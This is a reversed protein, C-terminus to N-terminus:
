VHKRETFNGPRFEMWPPHKDLDMRSRDIWEIPSEHPRIGKEDPHCKTEKFWLHVAQPRVKRSDNCRCCVVNGSELRIIRDEPDHSRLRNPCKSFIYGNGLFPKDPFRGREGVLLGGREAHSCQGGVLTNMVVMRWTLTIADEDISCGTTNASKSNLHCFRKAGMHSRDAASAVMLQNPAKAGIRDNIVLGGIKQLDFLSEVENKIGDAIM